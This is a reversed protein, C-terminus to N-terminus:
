APVGQLLEIIALNMLHKPRLRPTPSDLDMSEDATEPGGRRSAAVAAPSCAPLRAEADSSTEVATAVVELGPELSLLASLGAIVIAHDDALVIRIM